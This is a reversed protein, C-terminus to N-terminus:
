SGPTWLRKAAGGTPPPPQGADPASPASPREASSEPRPPQGGPPAGGGGQKEAEVQALRLQTVAESLQKHLNADVKDSVADTIAGAADILLRADPRGAKVQAASLLASGVEAIVQDAPTERLQELYARVEEESPQSGPAASPNDSM